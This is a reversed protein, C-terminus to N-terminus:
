KFAFYDGSIFPNPPYEPWSISDFINVM